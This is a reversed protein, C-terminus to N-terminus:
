VNIKGVSPSPDGEGALGCALAIRQQQLTLECLKQALMEGVVSEEDVVVDAGDEKLDGLSINYRGRAIIDVRPAM